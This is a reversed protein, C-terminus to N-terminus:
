AKNLFVQLKIVIVLVEILVMTRMFFRIRIRQGGAESFHFLGHLMIEYTSIRLMRLL